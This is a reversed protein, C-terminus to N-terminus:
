PHARHNLRLGFYAFLLGIATLILAFFTSILTKQMRAARLYEPISVITGNEAPIAVNIGNFRFCGAEYHTYFLGSTTFGRGDCM